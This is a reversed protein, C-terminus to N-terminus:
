FCIIHQGRRYAFSTIDNGVIKLIFDFKKKVHCAFGKMIQSKGVM